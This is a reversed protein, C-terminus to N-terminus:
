ECENSDIRCKNCEHRRYTCQERGCKGNHMQHVNHRRICKASRDISEGFIGLACAREVVCDIIRGRCLGIMTFENVANGVPVVESMVQPWVCACLAIFIWVMKKRWLSKLQPSTIPINLYMNIADDINLKVPKRSHQM